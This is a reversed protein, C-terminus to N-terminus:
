RMPPSSVKVVHISMYLIISAAIVTSMSTKIIRQAPPTKSGIMGVGQKAPGMDVDSAFACSTTTRNDFHCAPRDGVSRGGVGIVLRVTHCRRIQLPVAEM